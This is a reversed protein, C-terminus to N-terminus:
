DQGNLIRNLKNWENLFAEHNQCESAIKMLNAHPHSALEAEIVPQLDQRTYKRIDLSLKALEDVKPDLWEKLARARVDCNDLTRLIGSVEDMLGFARKVTSEMGNDDM